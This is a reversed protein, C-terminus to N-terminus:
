LTSDLSTLGERIAFRILDAIGKLDLKRMIRARYTDVTNPSLALTKGINLTSHGEAILQLVQRERRSLRALRDEGAGSGALENLVPDTLRGGLHRRGAHVARIAIVVDEAAARKTLYGSAGAQLARRIHLADAHVSVVIVRAEPWRLRIEGTAETGNLGPMEHDMIVVDPRQSLSLRVADRGNQVLAIVDMDAEANVLCRLSGAVVGHDDAILVRIKLM